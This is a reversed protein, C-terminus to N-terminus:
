SSSMNMEAARPTATLRHSSPNYHDGRAHTTLSLACAGSASKRIAAMEFRRVECVVRVDEVVGFVVEVCGVLRGVGEGVVLSM